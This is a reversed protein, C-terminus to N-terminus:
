VRGKTIWNIVFYLVTGGVLTLVTFIGFGSVMIIKIGLIIMFIALTVVCSIIFGVSDFFKNINM